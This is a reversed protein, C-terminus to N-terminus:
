VWVLYNLHRWIAGLSPFLSAAGSLNTVGLWVAWPLGPFGGIHQPVPSDRLLGTQCPLVEPWCAQLCISIHPDFHASPYLVFIVTHVCSVSAFPAPPTVWLSGTLIRTGQTANHIAASHFTMMPCSAPCPPLFLFFRQKTRSFNEVLVFPGM